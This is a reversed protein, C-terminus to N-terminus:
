VSRSWGGADAERGIKKCTQKPKCAGVGYTNTVSKEVCIPIRYAQVTFDQSHMKLATETATPDFQDSVYSRVVAGWMRSSNIIAGWM